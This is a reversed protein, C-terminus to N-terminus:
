VDVPYAAPGTLVTTSKGTFKLFQRGLEILMSDSGQAGLISMTMPLVEERKSVKSFYKYQGVAFGAM